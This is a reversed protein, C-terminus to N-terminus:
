QGRYNSPRPEFEEGAVRVIGTAVSQKLGNKGFIVRKLGYIVKGDPGKAKAEVNHTGYIYYNQKDSTVVALGTASIADAEVGWNARGTESDFQPGLVAQALREMDEWPQLWREGPRPKGNNSAM